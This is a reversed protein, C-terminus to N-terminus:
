HDMSLYQQKFHKGQHHYQEQKEILLKLDQAVVSKIKTSIDTTIQQAKQLYLQADEEKGRLFLSLGLSYLAYQRKEDLTEFLVNHFNWTAVNKAQGTIRPQDLLNVLQQQYRMAMILKGSLAYSQAIGLHALLYDGDLTLINKYHEIADDYHGLKRYVTALNNKYIQNWQSREVAKKYYSLAEKLQQQTEFLYGLGFYASATRRDSRIAAHYHDKAKKPDDLQVALDGYLVQVYPNDPQKQQLFHLQKEIAQPRFDHIIRHATEVIFHGIQADVNLEDIALAKDFAQTAEEYLRDDLFAYGLSLHNEVVKQQFQRKQETDDFAKQEAEIRKLMHLPYIDNFMWAALMVLISSILVLAPLVENLSKLRKHLQNCTM